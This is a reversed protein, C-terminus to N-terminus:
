AGQREVVLHLWLRQRIHDCLSELAGPTGTSCLLPIRSERATVPVASNLHAVHVQACGGNPKGGGKVIRRSSSSGFVLRMM